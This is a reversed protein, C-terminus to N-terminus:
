RYGFIRVLVAAIVLASGTILYYFPFPTILSTLLILVGGLLFRRSNGKAFWLRRKQGKKPPPPLIYNEPLANGRKLMKYVDTGKLVRIGFRACLGEAQPSIDSCLLVKQREEKKGLVPAIKDADPPCLSFFPFFDESETEVFAKGRTKRVRAACPTEREKGEEDHSSFFKAFGGAVKEESQLSLHFLLKEKEEEDKKALCFKERKRRLVFFVAGAAFLGIVASLFLAAALPFRWFRLFCLAPLFAAGFAFLLDSIFASKKM